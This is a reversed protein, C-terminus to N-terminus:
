HGHMQLELIKMNSIANIRLVVADLESERIRISALSWDLVDEFPLVYNDIAIVPICNLSLMVLLNHMGYQTGDDLLLCFTAKSLVHPYLHQRLRTGVPSCRSHLNAQQESSSPCSQLLLVDAPFDLALTQLLLKKGSNINIETMALLYKRSSGAAPM